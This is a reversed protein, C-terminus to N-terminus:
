CRRAGQRSAHVAVSVQDLQWLLDHLAPLLERAEDMPLDLMQACLLGVGDEVGTLDLTRGSQILARALALTCSLRAALDGLRQRPAPGAVPWLPRDVNPSRHLPTAQPM